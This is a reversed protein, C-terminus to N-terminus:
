ADESSTGESKSQEEAEAKEADKKLVYYSGRKQGMKHLIDKNVLDALDRRITEAHVDPYMSQLEKNTIRTIHPKNLHALAAEQRPNLPTAAYESLLTEDPQPATMSAHKGSGVPENYLKVRFGGRTETFDPIRLHHRQMLEIMRDIGYGLREIYGLDSLVQVIAPNRSFREDKINDITVPGPLKGPSSVEMRDKFLFLRIGDGEISYDRHAVANVLVERAAEMPYEYAEDRAMTTTIQVGKRLHDLL